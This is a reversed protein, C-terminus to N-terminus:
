QSKIFKKKLKELEALQEPTMMHKYNELSKLLQEITM